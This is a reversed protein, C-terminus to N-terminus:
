FGDPPHPLGLYQLIQVLNEDQEVDFHIDTFLGDHSNQILNRIDLGLGNMVPNLNSTMIDTIYTNSDIVREIMLRCRYTPLDFPTRCMPCTPDGPACTRKWRDVCKTHFEHTCPLVRTNRTHLTSFCVSCQPGSHIWCHETGHVTHKCTGGSLTLAGCRRDQSM